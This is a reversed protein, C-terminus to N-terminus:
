INRRQRPTLWKPLTPEYVTNVEIVPYAVLIHLYKGNAEKGMILCHASPFGIPPYYELTEVESCDLAHEVQEITIQRSFMKELAYPRFYLGDQHKANQIDPIFTNQSDMISNRSAGSDM